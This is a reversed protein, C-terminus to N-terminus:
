LREVRGWTLTQQKRLFKFFGILLALNISSFYYPILFIKPFWQWNEAFYGIVALSYFINQCIFVWCFFSQDLLFMNSIYLLMLLFPIFWRIVKHLWFGFSPFGLLPNLLKELEILANFNSVGIRVKRLFEDKINPSITEFAQAQEDYLIDYGNIVAKLSIVFDDVIIKSDSLPQFLNKRLAYIAGNAGIVTQIKGELKKIFNEYRWYVTESNKWNDKLPNVLILRGCVGGISEDVFHRVLKRIADPKYITNADSFIIINGIANDILSNLVQAKGRRETFLFPKINTGTVKQLIKNTQDTSGDSGILIELKDKPYELHLCNQIKKELIKDENYASIIMSVFPTFAPDIKTARSYFLSIIKLLIPYGLYSV